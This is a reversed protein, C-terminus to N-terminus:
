KKSLFFDRIEEEDKGKTEPVLFYTMFLSLLCFSAYMWYVGYSHMAEVEAQFSKTVTFAFTWNLATAVGSVVSRFRPPTMEAVMLWPTPGFGISFASVYSMLCVLPLWGLTKVVSADNTRALDFGGFVILSVAMCVGSIMLLPKRGARDMLVSSIMTAIVQVTAVLITALLPDMTSGASEFIQVTYFMVANVGSFQQFLMLLISLGFPKYVTPVLFERINVGGKPQAQIEAEMQRCDTEADYNKGQLFILANKAEGRRKQTMLWRPSEPMLVMLFAALLSFFAGSIASYRWTLGSGLLSMILIGIVVFLQFSAGLLGRVEPTSIEVLYMPTAVSVVGSCFGTVIRGAFILGVSDTYAIFLWGIVFPVTNLILTGKRGLSNTFYGAAGGGILAGITMLSGIWTVEDPSPHISSHRKQMDMTATASWTGTIGMCVAFLLVVLAALYMRSIGSLPHKQGTSSSGSVEQTFDAVNHLQKNDSISDTALPNRVFQLDDAVEISVARNTKSLNGESAYDFGPNDYENTSSTSSVTRVKRTDM